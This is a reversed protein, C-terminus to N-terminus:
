TTIENPDLPDIYPDHPNYNCWTLKFLLADEENKFYYLHDTSVYTNTYQDKLETELWDLFNAYYMDVTVDPILVTYLFGYHELMGHLKSEKGRDKDYIDWNESKSFENYDYEWNFYKM